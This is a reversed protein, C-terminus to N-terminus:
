GGLLRVKQREFEDEDIEGARLRDELEVFADEIQSEGMLTGRRADLEIRRELLEDEHERLARRTEDDAAADRAPAIAPPTPARTGHTRALFVVIAVVLVVAVAVAVLVM